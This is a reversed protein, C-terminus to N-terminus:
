KGNDDWLDHGFGQKHGTFQTQTDGEGKPIHISGEPETDALLVTTHDLSLSVSKPPLYKM